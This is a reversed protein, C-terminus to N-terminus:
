EGEIRAITVYNATFGTITVRYLGPPLTLYQAGATAVIQTLGCAIYTVGDPGKRFLDVTGAGTGTFDFAYAGGRLEFDASVAAVANTFPRVAENARM